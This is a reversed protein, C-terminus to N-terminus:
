EISLHGIPSQINEIKYFSVDTTLLTDYDVISRITYVPKSTFINDGNTDEFLVIEEFMADAHLFATHIGSIIILSILLLRGGM